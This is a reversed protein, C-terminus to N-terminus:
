VRELVQHVNHTVWVNNELSGHGTIAVHQMWALLVAARSSIETAGPVSRLLQAERAPWEDGDLLECVVSGIERREALARTSCALHVVDVVPIGPTTRIWDIIGSVEVSEPTWLVNGLWLNGHVFAMTLTRGALQERLEARARELSRADALARLQTAAAAKTKCLPEDVLVAFHEEDVLTM